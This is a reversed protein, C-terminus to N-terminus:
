LIGSLSKTKVTVKVSFLWSKLCLQPLPAHHKMSVIIKNGRLLDACPIIAKMYVIKYISHTTIAESSLDGFM